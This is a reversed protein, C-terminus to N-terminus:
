IRVRATDRQSLLRWVRSPLSSRCIFFTANWNQTVCLKEYPVVYTLRQARWLWCPNVRFRVQTLPRHRLSAHNRPSVFLRLLLVTSQLLAASLRFCSLKQNVFIVVSILVRIASKEKGKCRQLTHHNRPLKNSCNCSFILDTKHQIANSVRPVFQSPNAAVLFSSNISFERFLNTIAAIFIIVSNRAWSLYNWTWSLIYGSGWVRNWSCNFVIITITVCFSLFILFHGYRSSLHDRSKSLAHDSLIRVIM